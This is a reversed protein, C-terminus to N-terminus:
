EAPLLIYYIQSLAATRQEINSPAHIIWCSAILSFPLKSIAHFLEANGKCPFQNDQSGSLIQTVEQESILSM